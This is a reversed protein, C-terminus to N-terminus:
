KQLAYVLLLCRHTNIPSQIHTNVIKIEGSTNRITRRRLNSKRHIDASIYMENYGEKYFHRLVFINKVNTRKTRHFIQRVSPLFCEAFYFFSKSKNQLRVATIREANSQIAAIKFCFTGQVIHPASIRDKRRYYETKWHTEQRQNHIGNATRIYQVCVLFVIITM